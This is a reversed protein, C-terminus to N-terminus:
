PNTEEGRTRTPRQKPPEYGWAKVEFGRNRDVIDITEPDIRYANKRYGSLTGLYDAMPQRARERLTQRAAATLFDAKEGVDDCVRNM